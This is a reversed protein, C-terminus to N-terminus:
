ILRPITNNSHTPTVRSTSRFAGHKTQQQQQTIRSRVFFSDSEDKKKGGVWYWTGFYVPAM